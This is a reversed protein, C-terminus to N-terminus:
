VDTLLELQHHRRQLLLGLIYAPSKVSHCQIIYYSPRHMFPLASTLMKSSEGVFSPM